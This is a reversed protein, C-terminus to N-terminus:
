RDPLETLAQRALERGLNWSPWGTTSGDTLALKRQDLLRILDSRSTIDLGPLAAV